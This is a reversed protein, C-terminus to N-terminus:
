VGDNCRVPVSHLVFLALLLHANVKQSAHAFIARFAVKQVRILLVLHWNALENSLVAVAVLLLAADVPV